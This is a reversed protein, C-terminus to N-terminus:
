FLLKKLELNVSIATTTTIITDTNMGDLVSCFLIVPWLSVGALCLSFLPSYCVLAAVVHWFHIMM